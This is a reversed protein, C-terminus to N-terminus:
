VVSKRDGILASGADGHFAVQMHGRRRRLRQHNEVAVAVEAREPDAAPLLGGAIGNLIKRKLSGTDSLLERFKRPLLEFRCDMEDLRVARNVAPRFCDKARESVVRFLATRQAP